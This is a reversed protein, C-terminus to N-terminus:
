LGLSDAGGDLTGAGDTVAGNLTTQTSAQDAFALSTSVHASINGTELTALANAAAAQATSMNTAITVLGSTEALLGEGAAGAEIAVGAATEGLVGLQATVIEAKTKGGILQGATLLNAAAIKSRAAAIATANDAVNKNAAALNTNAGDLDDRASDVADYLAIHVADVVADTGRVGAVTAAVQTADVREFVEPQPIPDSIASVSFTTVVAAVALGLINKKFKM